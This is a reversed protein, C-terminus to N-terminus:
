SLTGRCSAGAGATCAYCHDGVTVPTDPWDDDLLASLHSPGLTPVRLAQNFECDHLRGDWAVSLTDRCMVRDLNAPTHNDRLL